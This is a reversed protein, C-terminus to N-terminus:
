DGLLLRQLEVMSQQNKDSYFNRQINRKERNTLRWNLSAREIAEEKIQKNTPNEEQENTHQFISRSVYEFELCYIDNDFWSQAQDLLNDNNIDQINGLNNYISSIPTVIRQFM